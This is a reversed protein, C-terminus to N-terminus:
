AKKVYMAPVTIRKRIPNKVEVEILGDARVWTVVGPNTSNCKKLPRGDLKFADFYEVNVKDGKKFEM